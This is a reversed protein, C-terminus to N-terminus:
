RQEKRTTPSKTTYTVEVNRICIFEKECEGCEFTDEGEMGPGFDWEWSDKHKFGCHPCVPEREYETNEIKM